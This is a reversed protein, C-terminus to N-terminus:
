ARKPPRSSAPPPVPMPVRPRAIKVTPRHIRPVPCAMSRRPDVMWPPRRMSSCRLCRGRGAVDRRRQRRRAGAQASRRSRGLSQSRTKTPDNQKPAANIKNWRDTSLTRHKPARTLLDSQNLTMRTRISHEWSQIQQCIYLKYIPNSNSFIPFPLTPLIHNSSM